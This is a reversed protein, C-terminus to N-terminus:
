WTQGPFVLGPNDEDEYTDRLVTKVLGNAPAGTSMNTLTGNAVRILGMVGLDTLDAYIELTARGTWSGFLTDLDASTFKQTVKPGIEGMETFESGVLDGDMTRLTGYVMGTDDTPNTVRVVGWDGGPDAAPPVNLLNRRAGDRLITYCVKNSLMEVPDDLDDDINTITMTFSREEQSVAQFFDGDASPELLKFRFRFTDCPNSGSSLPDLTEYLVAYAETRAANIWFENDGSTGQLVGDEDCSSFQNSQNNEIAAIGSFDGKLTFLVSADGDWTIASDNLVRVSIRSGRFPRKLDETTAFTSYPAPCSKLLVYDTAPVVCIGAVTARCCIFCYGAADQYSRTPEGIPTWTGGLNTTFGILLDACDGAVMDETDFIEIGGSNSNLTLTTTSEILDVVRWTATKYDASITLPPAPLGSGAGIDGPIPMTVYGAPTLTIDDTFRANGTLTLTITDQETLSEDAEMEFVVDDTRDTAETGEKICLNDAFRVWDALASGPLLALTVLLTLIIGFTKTVKMM